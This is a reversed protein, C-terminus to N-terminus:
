RSRMTEVLRTKNPQLESGTDVVLLECANDDLMAVLGWADLEKPVDAALLEIATLEPVTDEAACPEEPAVTGVTLVLSAGCVYEALKGLSHGVHHLCAPRQPIM